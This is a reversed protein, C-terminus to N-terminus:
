AARFTRTRTIITERRRHKETAFIADVIVIPTRAAKIPRSFFTTKTRCHDMFRPSEKASCGIGANSYRRSLANQCETGSAIWINVVKATNERGHWAQEFVKKACYTIQQRV